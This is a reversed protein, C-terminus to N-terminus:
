QVKKTTKFYTTGDSALIKGDFIDKFIQEMRNSNKLQEHNVSVAERVAIGVGPLATASEKTVLGDFPTSVLVTYPTTVTVWCPDDPDYPPINSCSKKNGGGYPDCIYEQHTSYRTETKVAGVAWDLGSQFPGNLYSASQSWYTSTTGCVVSKPPNTFANAVAMAYYIDSVNYM